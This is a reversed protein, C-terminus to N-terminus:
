KLSDRIKSVVDKLKIGFRIYPRVGFMSYNESWETNSIEDRDGDDDVTYEGTDMSTLNAFHYSFISGINIYIMKNLFFSVGIDGGIGISFQAFEKDILKGITPGLSFGIGFTMDTKETFEIKYAPGV